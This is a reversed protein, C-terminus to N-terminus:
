NKIKMIENLENDSLFPYMNDLSSSKLSGDSNKSSQVRPILIQNPIMTVDCLIPGDYDLVKQINKSLHKNSIIKKAKLGYAKAIKFFEPSSVGSEPNSGIYNGSFLNDQMLKIALYGNNNLIFIKIPIKYQVITQLEQINMQFGGDGAIVIIKNSKDAFYAGIGGPLGYGMSCCASSTFLRNKGNTRLSQHTSTFSTGMDTVVIHNDELKKSLEYIFQFSNVGENSIESYENLYVPYKFKLINLEKIWKNFITFNNPLYNNLNSIFGKLCENIKLDINITKKNLEASDIDVMIKYSNPSFLNTEYGINPISLRCGLIILLDAKQVAFNAAREGFLGFNGIYQDSYWDFIDKATWSSIVPVKIKDLLSLLDKEADALHIGNGVVLLPRKSSNIKEIINEYQSINNIIVPTKELKYSSLQSKDIMKSQIDIPIDLWVPGKRGSNAKHWAKELHYNIEDPSTIQHSYKTVSDVIKIFDLEQVGVQRVNSFEENSTHKKSVQGSLIIMPISDQFAGVVGTLTNVSGPGNTVLVLAPKKSVRFYAEASMSCAQEHNNCIYNIKSKNLSNLLHAAAGGTVIFAVEVGKEELFEFVYDAVSIKM